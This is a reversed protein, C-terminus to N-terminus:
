FKLTKITIKSFKNRQAKKFKEVDGDMVNEKMAYDILSDWIEYIFKCESKNQNNKCNNTLYHSASSNVDIGDRKQVYIFDDLHNKIEVETSVPFAYGFFKSNKEKFLQEETAEALTKYTDLIQL